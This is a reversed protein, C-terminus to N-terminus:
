VKVKRRRKRRRRRRGNASCGVTAKPRDFLTRGNKERDMVLKRCRRVGLVQLDREVEEKWGKRPRGRRRKGELEQLFIKKFV